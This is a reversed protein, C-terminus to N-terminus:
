GDLPVLRERLALLAAQTRNDLHLKALIHSVHTRVTGEEIAGQEAIQASSWGRAIAALVQWERETLQALLAQQTADAAHVLREAVLPHLTAEGSSAARIARQIEGPKVDKLLFSRAGAELAGVIRTKDYYNTLVILETHSARAKIQRIVEVGDLEPLVLDILIVDPALAAALAVGETGTAAEGVVVIDPASSLFLRLGRRVVPHDDILLVRIRDAEM